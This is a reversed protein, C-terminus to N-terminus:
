GLSLAGSDLDLAGQNLDLAGDNLDLAEEFLDTGDLQLTPEWVTLNFDLDLSAEFLNETDFVEPLGQFENLIVSSGVRVNDPLTLFLSGVLNGLFGGTIGGVMGLVFAGVATGIGPFFSGLLAGLKAGIVAGGWGGVSESVQLTTHNGWRNGDKRVAITIQAADFAIALLTGVKGIKNRSFFSKSKSPDIKSVRVVTKNFEKLNNPGKIGYNRVGRENNFVNRGPNSAAM